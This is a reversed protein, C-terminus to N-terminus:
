AKYYSTIRDFATDLTRIGGEGFKTCKIYYMIEIERSMNHSVYYALRIILDNLHLSVEVSKLSSRTLFNSLTESEALFFSKNSCAAVFKDSRLLNGPNRRSNNFPLLLPWCLM